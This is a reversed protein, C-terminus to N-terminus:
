TQRSAGLSFIYQVVLDQGFGSGHNDLMSLQRPPNRTVLVRVATKLGIAFQKIIAM